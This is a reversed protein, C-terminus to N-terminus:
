SERNHCGFTNKGPEIGVLAPGHGSWRARDADEGTRSCTLCTGNGVADGISSKRTFDTGPMHERNGEGCPGGSLHSGPQGREAGSFHLGAREM